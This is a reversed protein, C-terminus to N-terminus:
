LYDGREGMGQRYDARCMASFLLATSNLLGLATTKQLAM